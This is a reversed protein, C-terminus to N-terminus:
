GGVDGLKERQPQEEVSQRSLTHIQAQSQRLDPITGQVKGEQAEHTEWLGM